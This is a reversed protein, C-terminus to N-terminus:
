RTTCNPSSTPPYPVSLWAPSMRSSAAEEASHSRSAPAGPGAPTGSCTVTELAKDAAQQVAKKTAKRVVVKENEAVNGGRNTVGTGVFWVNCDWEVLPCQGSTTRQARADTPSVTWFRRPTPAM